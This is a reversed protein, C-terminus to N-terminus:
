DAGDECGNRLESGSGITTDFCESPLREDTAFERNLEQLKADAEAEDASAALSEDGYRLLNGIAGTGLLYGIALVAVCLVGLKLYRRM